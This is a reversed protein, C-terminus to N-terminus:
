FSHFFELVTQYYAPVLSFHDANPVKKLEVKHAGKEKMAEYTTESNFFPVYDDATGHIMLIPSEPKWNTLDNEKLAKAFATDKGNLFDERFKPTFLVRPNGSINPSNVGEKEVIEAYPPNLYYSLPRNLNYVKNYTKLVWLYSNMFSLEKDAALIYKAFATKNYAGAAPVSATVKLQNSLNEQIHKHLAMTAFGGESYGTLFLKDPLDKIVEKCVQKAAKILDASATALSPAHEYLHELASSEGYGIYDPASVVFGLSALYSGFLATESAFFHSPASSDNWLTGHHQSVLGKPTKMEPILVAGSARIKGEEPHNTLYVVRYVKVDYKLPFAKLQYPLRASIGAATLETIKTYSILPSSTEELKVPSDSKCGFAIISLVALTGYFLFHM